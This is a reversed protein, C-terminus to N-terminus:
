LVTTPIPAPNTLNDLFQKAGRIKRRTNARFQLELPSQGIVPHCKLAISVTSGEESEFDCVVGDDELTYVILLQEQAVEEESAPYNDFFDTIVKQVM